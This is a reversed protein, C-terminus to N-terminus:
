SVIQKKLSLLSLCFVVAIYLFIVSIMERIVFDGYYASIVFWPVLLLYFFVQFIRLKINAKRKEETPDTGKHIMAIAIPMTLSATLFQETLLWDHLVFLTCGVTAIFNQYWLDDLMNGYGYQRISVWYLTWCMWSINLLIM